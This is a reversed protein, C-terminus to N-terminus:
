KNLNRRAEIRSLLDNNNQRQDLGADIRARKLNANWHQLLREPDSETELLVRERLASTDGTLNPILSVEEPNLRVRLDPDVLLCGFLHEAATMRFATWDMFVELHVVRAM